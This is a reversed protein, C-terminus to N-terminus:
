LWSTAQHECGKERKNVKEEVPHGVFLGQLLDQRRVDVGCLRVRDRALLSSQDGFEFSLKSVGFQESEAELEFSLQM